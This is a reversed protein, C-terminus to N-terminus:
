SRDKIVTATKSETDFEVTLYEGYSMFRDSTERLMEVRKDLLSEREDDNLGEISALSKEAEEQICEYAGDSDKMTIRFKM